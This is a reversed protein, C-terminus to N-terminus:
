SHRRGRDVRRADRYLAGRYAAIATSLRRAHLVIANARLRTSGRPPHELRGHQHEPWAAILAAESISLASDLIDLPALEPCYEPATPLSLTLQRM